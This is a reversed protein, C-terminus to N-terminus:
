VSYSLVKLCFWSSCKSRSSTLFAQISIDFIMQLCCQPHMFNLCQLSLVLLSLNLILNSFLLVLELVNLLSCCQSLSCNKFSLPSEVVIGEFSFFLILPCLLKSKLNFLSIILHFSNLCSSSIHLSIIVSSLFFAKLELSLSSSVFIVLSIKISLNM